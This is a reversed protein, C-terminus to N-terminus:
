FYKTALQAFIDLPYPLYRLPLQWLVLKWNSLKNLSFLLRGEAALDAAVTPFHPMVENVEILVM